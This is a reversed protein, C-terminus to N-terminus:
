AASEKWSVVRRNLYKMIENLAISIIALIIVGDLALGLELKDAADFIVGGLGLVSFIMEAIIVGDIARTLGMRLGVMIDPLAAPLIIKSAMQTGNAGFSMGPEVLTKSVNKVGTYVNIIISFVAILFAIVITATGSQGFWNMTLPVFAVAPISYWANVWPDLFRDVLIYKGMMFGVPIGVVVAIAFGEFIAAMTQGLGTFVLHRVGPNYIMERFWHLSDAPSAITKPNNIIAAMEEWILVAVVVTLAIIPFRYRYATSM